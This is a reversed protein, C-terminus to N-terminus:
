NAHHTRGHEISSITAKTVGFVAAIDPVFSGRELLYRVVRVDEGSLKRSSLGLRGLRRGQERVREHNRQWHGRGKKVMDRINDRRTGAFLHAPNVCSPNDCKHCIEHGSQIPGHAIEYSYRHAYVWDNKGASFRGYGTPLKAALWLWCGDPDMEVKDTFRKPFTAGTFGHSDVPAQVFCTPPSPTVRETGDSIIEGVTQLGAVGQSRLRDVLQAQDTSM